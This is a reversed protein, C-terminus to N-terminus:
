RDVQKMGLLLEVVSSCFSCFCVCVCVCVCIKSRLCLFNIFDETKPIEKPGSVSELEDPIPRYVCVCYTPVTM